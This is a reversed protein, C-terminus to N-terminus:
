AAAAARTPRSSVTGSIACDTTSVRVWAREVTIGSVSDSAAKAAVRAVNTSCKAMVAIRAAISSSIGVWPPGARYYHHVPRRLGLLEDDPSGDVVDGILDLRGPQLLGRHNQHAVSKACVGIRPRPLAM